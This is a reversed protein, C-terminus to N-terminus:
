ILKKLLAYVGGVLKSHVKLVKFPGLGTYPLLLVSEGAASVKRLYRSWSLEKPDEPELLVVFM